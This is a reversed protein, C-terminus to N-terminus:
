MYWYAQPRPHPPWSWPHFPEMPYGGSVDMHEMSYEPTGPGQTRLRWDHGQQQHQHQQHQQQRLLVPPQEHPQVQREQAHSAATACSQGTGAGATTSPGARNTVGQPEPQKKCGSNLDTSQPASQKRLNKKHKKGIKHDVWQTPGNLWMQCTECWVAGESRVEEEQPEEEEEDKEPLAEAPLASSEMVENLVEQHQQPSAQRSAMAEAARDVADGACLGYCCRRCASRPSSSMQAAGVGVGGIAAQCMALDRLTFAAERQRRYVAEKADETSGDSPPGPILPCAEQRFVHRASAAAMAEMIESHETNDVGRHQVVFTLNRHATVDVARAEPDLFIDPIPSDCAGVRWLDDLIHQQLIPRMVQSMTAWGGDLLVAAVVASFMDGLARPSDNVILQRWREENNEHKTFAFHVRREFHKVADKLEQSEIRLHNHLGWRVCALAYSLHNCCASALQRLREDVKISEESFWPLPAACDPRGKEMLMVLLLHDVLPRGLFALRSFSITPGSRVSYHTVAEVLLMPNRFTHQLSKMQFDILKGHGPVLLKVMPPVNSWPARLWKSSHDSLAVGAFCTSPQQFDKFWNVVASPLPVQKDHTELWTPSLWAKLEESFILERPESQELGEAELFVTGWATSRGFIRMEHRDYKWLISSGSGIHEVESREDVPDNPIPKRQTVLSALSKFTLWDVVRNPLVEELLNSRITKLDECYVLPQENGVGGRGVVQETGMGGDFPRRYMYEGRKKYCVRLQSGESLEQLWCYEPTPGKFHKIRTLSALPSGSLWRSVKNPLACKDDFVFTGLDADFAVDKWEKCNINRQKPPHQGTARLYIVSCDVGKDSDKYQVHLTKATDGEPPREQLQTYSPTRGEFYVHSGFLYHGLIAEEEATVEESSNSTPSGPPVHRMCTMFKWLRWVSSFDGGTSTWAAALLTSLDRPQVTDRPQVNGAQPSSEKRAGAATRMPVVRLQQRLLAALDSGGFRGWGTELDALEQELQVEHAHPKRVFALLSLLLRLLGDGLLQQLEFARGLRWPWRSCREVASKDPFTLAAELAFHSLGPLAPLQTRSLRWLTRLRFFRQLLSLLWWPRLTTKVSEQRTSVGEMAHQEQVELQALLQDMEQLSEMQAFFDENASDDEPAGSSALGDGPPVRGTKSAQAFPDPVSWLDVDTTASRDQSAPLHDRSSAVRVFNGMEKWAFQGTASDLQVLLVGPPWTDSQARHLMSVHYSRLLEAADQPSGPAGHIGRQPPWTIETPNFRAKGGGQVSWNLTLAPGMDDDKTM